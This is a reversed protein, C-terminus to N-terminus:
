GAPPALHAHKPPNALASLFQTKQAPTLVAIVQAKLQAMDQTRQRAKAAAQDAYSNVQQQYDSAAPDLSAFALQQQRFGAHEAKATAHQTEFIQHISAKQTDSLDLQKLAGMFPSHGHGYGHHPWAPAATAAPAPTTTQAQAATTSVAATLALVASAILSKNM